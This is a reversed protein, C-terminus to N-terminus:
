TYFKFLKHRWQFCVSLNKAFFLATFKLNLSVTRLKWSDDSKTTRLKNPLRIWLNWRLLWYKYNLLIPVCKRHLSRGACGSGSIRGNGEFGHPCDCAFSGNNNNCTAMPVCDYSPTNADCENIDSIDNCTSFIIAFYLEMIKSQRLENTWAYAYGPNKIPPLPCVVFWMCHRKCFNEFSYSKIPGLYQLISFWFGHGIKELSWSKASPLPNM